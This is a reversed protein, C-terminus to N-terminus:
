MVGSLPATLIWVTELQRFEIMAYTLLHLETQHPSNYISEDAGVSPRRLWVKGNVM